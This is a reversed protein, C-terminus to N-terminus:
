KSEYVVSGDKERLYCLTCKQSPKEPSLAEAKALEGFHSNLYYSLAAGLCVWLGLMLALLNELM